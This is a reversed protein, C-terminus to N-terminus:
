VIEQRVELQYVVNNQSCGNELKNAVEIKIGIVEHSEAELLKDHRVTPIVM